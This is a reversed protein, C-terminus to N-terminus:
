SRRERRGQRAGPEADGQRRGEECSDGQHRAQVRHGAEPPDEPLRRRDRCGHHRRHPRPVRGGDGQRRSAAVGLGAGARDRRRRDRDSAGAGKGAGARRDLDRDAERRDRRGQAADRRLRYRHHHAQRQRDRGQRREPGRGQRQRGPPRPGEAVDGQEQPVPVRHGQHFRRGGQGQPGDAHAFDLEVKGAKVGHQALEHGAMAYLHSSQLLAKSPICGINLCTGGLTGRKEVCATKLGLQAAKIACVYGGPGSGIVVVDFSQEAM